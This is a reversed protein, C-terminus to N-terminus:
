SQTKLFVEFDSTLSLTNMTYMLFGLGLSARLKTLGVWTIPFLRTGLPLCGSILWARPGPGMSGEPFGKLVLWKVGRQLEPGGWCGWVSGADLLHVTGHYCLPTLHM